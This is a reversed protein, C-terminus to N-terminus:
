TEETELTDVEPTLDTGLFGTVFTGLKECLAVIVAKNTEHRLNRLEDSETAAASKGLAEVALDFQGAKAAARAADFLMRADTSKLGDFNGDLNM